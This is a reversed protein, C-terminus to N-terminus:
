FGGKSLQHALMLFVSCTWALAPDDYGEGTLADYNEYMGDQNAVMRCFRRAIEKALDPYGARRLGDVVMFTSPAWVPGRWYSHSGYKKSQPSETALGYPTLLYGERSLTGIIPQLNTPPLTAGLVVPMLNLLSDSDQYRHSGSHPSVFGGRKWSHSILRSLMERSRERWKRSTGRKGLRGAVDSLVNMQLILYASLDPSEVPIGEDFVTCNDWCECGNNYQCIGDRDDDRSSLWWNTWHELPGFVEKLRKPELFYEFEMLKGLTWGHIPPKTLYTFVSTDNVYDPLMGNPLQHDFIVMFQDWSLEPDSEALVLAQFCHDWSWLNNMWNKSTLIAPRTFNGEPAVANAWLIYWALEAPESLEESVSPMKKKWLNYSRHAEEIEEEPNLEVKAPIWDHRGAKLVCSFGGNPDPSIILEVKSCRLGYDRVEWPSFVQLGGSLLSIGLYLRSEWALIQWSSPGRQLANSFTHIHPLKLLLDVGTGVIALSKEDKFFLKVWSDESTLTLVWPKAEWQFPIERGNKLPILQLVKPERCDGHLNRLYIGKDRPDQSIALYSGFRSFPVKQINIKKM